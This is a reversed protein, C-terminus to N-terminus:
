IAAVEAASLPRYEGPALDADLVIEGVSHRHLAVVANGLAAFMRKVQHYKGEVIALEVTCPDLVTLAAPQCRRQEGHLFIGKACREVASQPDDLPEALSVHYLKKCRNRPSTLRHNWQGDDTLLVLGTTDIDLRGAIQLEEARHEYILEVATTHDRDRNACVVGAPKNLMYYRPQPTAIPAGAITVDQGEGLRQGPDNVPTGDIAVEGNKVLRKVDNRSLDTANSIFRDIRM